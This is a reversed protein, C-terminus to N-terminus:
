VKEPVIYPFRYERRLHQNAQENNTFRETAPNMELWAGFVLRERDLDLGNAELHEVARGVAERGPANYALRERIEGPTLKQGMQYSINGTHCLASSLHGQLIDANLQGPNRSRVAAVFNAYHDAGGKFERILNGKEDYVLASDYSPIVMTGADCRVVVGIQAGRFDPMNKNWLAPSQFQKSKPLGRVEFILPAEPYDHLVVQTNPTNGDDQYGLRGGISLVRPSLADQRLVWRAIDMQHIGQNGLDGSGTDFVWHWDYHLNTRRLEKKPAPGCWLDYDVSEPIVQPGTTRGISQRPKYCLGHVVKIEGLGGAHLWAIAERLGPNSRSQTGTQVIRRYKRAANVIQRGEWVNHSVPKEVYVDKGHQCAWIAMLSHWHNPTAISVADIDKSELLRRVDVFKEVANDADALRAAEKELVKKDVDCLAVLRVGKQRRFGEIHDKGRGNFGIVAVRLDGNAGDVRAWSSAPISLAGAAIATSKLFSRRTTKM